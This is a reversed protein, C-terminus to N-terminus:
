HHSLTMQVWQLTSLQKMTHLCSTENHAIKICETSAVSDWVLQTPTLSASMRNNSLISSEKKKTWKWVLVQVWKRERSVPTILKFNEYSTWVASVSLVFSDRRTRTPPTFLVASLVLCNQRTEVWNGIQLQETEFINLVVSFKSILFQTSFLCFQRTKDPTTNVGGIRVLCSLRTKDTNATHVLQLVTDTQWKNSTEVIHGVETSTKLWWVNRVVAAFISYCRTIELETVTLEHRWSARRM